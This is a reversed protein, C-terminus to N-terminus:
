YPRCQHHNYYKHHHNHRLHIPCNHRCRPSHRHHYHHAHLNMIWVPHRFSGKIAVVVMCVNNYALDTANLKSVVTCQVSKSILKTYKGILFTTSDHKPRHRIIDSIHPSPKINQSEIQLLNQKLINGAGCIYLLEM